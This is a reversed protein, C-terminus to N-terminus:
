ARIHHNLVARTAGWPSRPAHRVRTVTRISVIQNGDPDSAIIKVANPGHDLLIKMSFKDDESVNVEVDNVTVVANLSARGRIETFPNTIATEKPPPFHVDLFFGREQQVPEDCAALAAMLLAALALVLFRSHLVINRDEKSPAQARDWM